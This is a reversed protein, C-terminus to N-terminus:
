GRGGGLGRKDIITAITDQGEDSTIYDQIMSKDPVVLVTVRDKLRENSSPPVPFPNANAPQGAKAMWPRPAVAAEGNAPAYGGTAFGRRASLRLAELNDVGIAKTAPADFVYEQGHVYGAISTVAGHGTFGGGDFLGVAGSSILNAAQPSAAVLSQNIGGGLLSGFLSGIGGGGGPAPPFWNMLSSGFKGLGQTATSAADSLDSVASTGLSTLSNTAMGASGGFKELADTAASLRNTWGSM